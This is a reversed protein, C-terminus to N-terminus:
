YCFRPLNVDAIQNILVDIADEKDKKPSEGPTTNFIALRLSDNQSNATPNEMAGEQLEMDTLCAFLSIIVM